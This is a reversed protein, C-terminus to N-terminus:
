KDPFGTATLNLLEVFNHEINNLSHSSNEVSLISQQANTVTYNLDKMRGFENELIERQHELKPITKRIHEQIRFLGLSPENSIINMVQAV